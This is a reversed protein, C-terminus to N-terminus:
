WPEMSLVLHRGELSLPDDLLKAKSTPTGDELYVYDYDPLSNIFEALRRRIVGRFLKFGFLAETKLLIRSFLKSRIRKKFISEKLYNYHLSIYLVPWGCGELSKAMVPILRFEGGEIDMKIFNIHEIHNESRFSELSMGPVMVFSGLDRARPLTSASSDGFSNRAHLRIPEDEEWIAINHCKVREKLGSNLALNHVMQKFIVPDPDIAHVEAGKSAAYLSLPGAWCGIDLMVDRPKLFRDLIDFSEPEWNQTAVYDWMAGFQFPNIRFSIDRIRINIDKADSM